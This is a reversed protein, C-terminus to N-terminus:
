GDKNKRKIKESIIERATMVLVAVRFSVVEHILVSNSLFLCMVSKTRGFSKDERVKVWEYGWSSM